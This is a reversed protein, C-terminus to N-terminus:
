ATAVGQWFSRLFAVSQGATVGNEVLVARMQEPPLEV